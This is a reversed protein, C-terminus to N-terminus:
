ASMLLNMAIMKLCDKSGKVAKWKANCVEGFANQEQEMLVKESM